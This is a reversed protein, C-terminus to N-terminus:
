LLWVALAGLSMWFALGLLASPWIVGHEDAEWWRVRHAGLTALARLVEGTVFLFALVASVLTDFLFDGM